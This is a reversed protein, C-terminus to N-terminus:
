QWADGGDFIATGPKIDPLSLLQGHETETVVLGL